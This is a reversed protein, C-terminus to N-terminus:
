KFYKSCCSLLYLKGATHFKGELKEAEPVCNQEKLTDVLIGITRPKDGTGRSFRLWEVLMERMRDKDPKTHPGSIRNLKNNEFELEIGIDRWRDPVEEIICRQLIVM